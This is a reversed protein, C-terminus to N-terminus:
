NLVDHISRNKRLLFMFIKRHLVIVKYLEQVIDEVCRRKYNVILCSYIKIRM